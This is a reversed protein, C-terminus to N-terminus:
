YSGPVTSHWFRAGCLAALHRRWCSHRCFVEAHQVEGKEDFLFASFDAAGHRDAASGVFLLNFVHLFDGVAPRGHHAHCGATERHRVFEFSADEARKERQHIAAFIDIAGRHAM